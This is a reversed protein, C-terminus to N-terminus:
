TSKTLDPAACSKVGALYFSKASRRTTVPLFRGAGVAYLYRCESVPLGAEGFWRALAGAHYVVFEDLVFHCRDGPSANFGRLANKPRPQLGQLLAACESNLTEIIFWAGPKLVRALGTLHARFLRHCQLMGVSLVGDFVADRFPLHTFDGCVRQGDQCTPLREFVPAAYDLLVPREFLAAYPGPGCGLDLM